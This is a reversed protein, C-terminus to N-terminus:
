QVPGLFRFRVPLLNQLLPGIALAIEDPDMFFQNTTAQGKGIRCQRRKAPTVADALLRLQRRPNVIKLWGFLQLMVGRWMPNLDGALLLRRLGSGGDQAVRPHQEKLAVGRELAEIALNEQRVRQTKEAANAPPDHDIISVNNHQAARSTLHNWHRLHLGEALAEAELKSRVFETIRITGSAHFPRKVEDLVVEKGSAPEGTPLIEIKLCPLPAIADIRGVLLVDAGNRALQKSDFACM